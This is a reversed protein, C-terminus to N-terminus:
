SFAQSDKTSFSSHYKSCVDVKSISGPKPESSELDRCGIGTWEAALPDRAYYLKAHFATLIPVLWGM